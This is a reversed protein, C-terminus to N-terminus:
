LPPSLCHAISECLNRLSLRLSPNKTLNKQSIYFFKDRKGDRKRERLRGMEKENRREREGEGKERKRRREREREERERKRQWNLLRYQSSFFYTWSQKPFNLLTIKKKEDRGFCSLFKYCIQELGGKTAM